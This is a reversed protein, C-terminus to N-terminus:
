WRGPRRRSSGARSPAFPRRERARRAWSRWSRTMVSRSPPMISPSWKKTARQISRACRSSNCRPSRLQRDTPERPGGSPLLRTSVSCAACRSRAGVIAALVLAVGSIAVRSPLLQYPIAGPPVVVDLLVACGAGVVAAILAVIAAQAVVGGLLTRSRAGIAKLMGYLGAREVTILAFFLAVVVVAIVLTVGIIQNFVSRQQKVGGIADSAEARSITTTAEGTARDVAAAVTSPDRDTRVVLAQFVGPGVSSGPRNANQVARWTVPAAWLTGAGSYSVDEVFGIVKVPSREPGLRLTDGRAVGDDRLISDAYAEGPKPPAPVGDPAKQYGFLAIDTLDRPGNGPVRAGLQTVGIGGVSTVGPVKAVQARVEPTIRSRLFSKEATSSFVVLDARTRARIAGTSRLILGDLLGGLLMLLVAILTLLVTAAAFRGPRRRMERLALRM